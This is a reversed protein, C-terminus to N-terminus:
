PSTQTVFGQELEQIRVDADYNCLSQDIKDWTIPAKAWALEVEVREPVYPVPQMREGEKRWVTRPLKVTLDASQGPGVRRMGPLMTHCSLMKINPPLQRPVTRMEVKLTGTEDDFDYGRDMSYVYVSRTRNNIVHAHVLYHQGDDEYSVRTLAVAGGLTWPRPHLAAYVQLYTGVALLAGLLLPPAAKVLAPIRMRAPSAFPTGRAYWEGKPAAREVAAGAHRAESGAAPADQWFSLCDEGAPEEGLGAHGGGGEASTGPGTSAAFFFSM